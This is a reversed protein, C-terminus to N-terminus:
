KRTAIAAAPQRYLAAGATIGAGGAVLLVRAGAPIRHSAYDLAAALAATHIKPNAAVVIREGPVGLQTSLAAHYRRRAPAAIVTDVDLPGLSSQELCDYAARASTRALEVDLDASEGFSLMNRGGHLGVRACFTGGDDFLNSWCVRELGYDDDTWSCLLAAGVASFPFHESMGHGPDADSAVILACTIVRARLFGDVVQLATLIGCTGNAIDFSFTGHAEGHPADPNAGIDHQILAALAPEGMNRDRYIGVNILLDLDDANRASHQLCTKAAIVALRLSSHRNWWRARTLDVREVITGM